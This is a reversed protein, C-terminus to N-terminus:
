MGRMEAAAAMIADVIHAYGTCRCLNGVLARRVEDRSPAPNEALFDAANMLIGSTCYGCQLAHYQSFAKQLPHLAGSTGLGEVTTVERGDLQVALKMCSKFAEGAIHVTCAGCRGEFSCGVHTGTLGCEDRLFDVLLMRLPVTRQYITGNVTISITKSM